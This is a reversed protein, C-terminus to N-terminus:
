KGPPKPKKVLEPLPKKLNRYIQIIAVSNNIVYYLSLAAAFNYFLFLFFLPMFQAIKQQQPDGIQPTMRMMVAMLATVMIPLPNITLHSITLLSFPLATSFITDPQTLDKVWLFHQGRLEVANQLMYYLSFFVPMQIFAPLCGGFPNVGYDRYLSFTESSVKDPQDKYKAQLEKIKPALAQMRKGSRNALSQLPWTAAKIVLTLLIIAVGYSHFASNFFHLIGLMPVILFSFPLWGDYNMLEGQNEGLANLRNYEKPGTYLTYTVATSKGAPLQIQPFQASAEINPIETSVIYGKEDRPNFCQFAAQTIPHTSDPTLLVAFFQDEVAVWRLPNPDITPSTVVDHPPGPNFFWGQPNFANITTLHYKETTLWGAGIYQNSIPQYKGKVLLPKARGLSLSYPPLVTASTGANALTDKVTITYEKDLSYTRTWTVGSGLAATYTLTGPILGGITGPAPVTGGEFASPIGTVAFATSDSDPWGTLTLVNSSSEDNLIVNKDGERHGKLDVKKIAAGHSTFTVKINNNELVALKEPTAPTASTATTQPTIPTETSGAPAPTAPPAADVTPANTDTVATGAAPAPHHAPPFMRAFMVQMVMYAVLCVVVGILGKRDM